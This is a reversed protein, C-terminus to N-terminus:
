LIEPSASMNVSVRVPECLSKNLFYSSPAPSVQAMVRNNFTRGNRIKTPIASDSINQPSHFFFSRLPMTTVSLPVGTAPLTVIGLM